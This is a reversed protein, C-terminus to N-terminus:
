LKMGTSLSFARFILQLIQLYPDGIVTWPILVSGVGFYSVTTWLGLWMRRIWHASTLKSSRWAKFLIFFIFWGLEAYGLTMRNPSNYVADVSKSLNPDAFLRLLGQTAPNTLIRQLTVLGGPNSLPSNPDLGQQAEKEQILMAAADEHAANPATDARLNATSFVLAILLLIPM